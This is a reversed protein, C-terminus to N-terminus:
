SPPQDVEPDPNQFILTVSGGTADTTSDRVTTSEVSFLGASSEIHYTFGATGEYMLTIVNSNLTISTIRPQPVIGGSAVEHAFYLWGNEEIRHNGSM